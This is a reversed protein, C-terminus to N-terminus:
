RPTKSAAPAPTSFVAPDISAPVAFGSYAMTGSIHMVRMALARGAMEFRASDVLYYGNEDALNYEVLATASAAVVSYKVGFRLMCLRMTQLDITADTLPYKMPDKRAILHVMHGLHGNACAAAGEDQVNYNGAGLSSVVAIVPLHSQPDIETATATAPAAAPAGGWGYRVLADIGSWTPNFIPDQLVAHGGKRNKLSVLHDSGRYSADYVADHDGGRGGLTLTMASEGPSQVFRAGEVHMHIAYSLNPPQRLTRMNRVANAYFTEASPPPVDARVAITACSFVAIFAAVFRSLM